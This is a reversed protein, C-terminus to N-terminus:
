VLRRRENLVTGAAIREAILRRLTVFLRVLLWSVIQVLLEDVRGFLIALAVKQTQIGVHFHNVAITGLHLLCYLARFDISCILVAFFYGGCILCRAIMLGSGFIVVIMMMVVVLVMVVVVVVVAVIQARALRNQEFLQHLQADLSLLDLFRQCCGAVLLADVGDIPEHLMRAIGYEDVVGYQRRAVVNEHQTRDASQGIM